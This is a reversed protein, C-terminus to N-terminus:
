TRGVRGNERRAKAERGPYAEAAEWPDRRGLDMRVYGRPAAPGGYGIESWATPHGFYAGICDAIIRSKFFLEPPMGGWAPDAAYGSQVATLLGDQEAPSLEHFPQGHRGRAEADLAGLGRRWADGMPPMRADRYGDSRGSALKHDILAAIPVPAARDPPQPLIRGCVAKLTAWEADTFFGHDDPGIALRQDIVRRTQENWSPTDRKSLVDYGPFRETV